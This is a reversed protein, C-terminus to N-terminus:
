LEREIERTCVLQLVQDLDRADGGSSAATVGPRVGILRGNLLHIFRDKGGVRRRRPPGALHFIPIQQLLQSAKGRSRSLRRPEADLHVQHVVATSVIASTATSTHPVASALFRPRGTRVPSLSSADCDRPALDVATGRSERFPTKLGPTRIIAPESFKPPRGTRSFLSLSNRGVSALCRGPFTRRLWRLLCPRMSTEILFGASGLSRVAGEANSGGRRVSVRGRLSEHRM